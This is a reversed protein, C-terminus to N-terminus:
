IAFPELYFMQGNQLVMSSGKKSLTYCEKINDYRQRVINTASESAVRTM